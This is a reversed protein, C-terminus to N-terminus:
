IRKRRVSFSSKPSKQTATKRRRSSSSMDENDTKKMKNPTSMRRSKNTQEITKDQNKGNRPSRPPKRLCPRSSKRSITSEQTKSEHTKSEQTPMITTTVGDKSRKRVRITNKLMKLDRTIFEVLDHHKLTRDPEPPPPYKEAIDVIAQSLGEFDPREIANLKWCTKMIIKMEEPTSTPPEPMEGKRIKTAIRKPPWEDGDFPKIGNNFVEYLLVAFAWVDSKRTFKPTSTLTEPAMWRVPMQAKGGLEDFLDRFFRSLGFDAIKCVGNHSFLCNRAALDRHIINKNHLFKMGSSVDSCYMMREGTSIVEKFEKLHTLLAVTCLEMVIVVPPSDCCIGVFSVINPHKLQSMIKGEEILENFNTKVQEMVSKYNVAGEQSVKVAVQQFNILSAHYVVCFNGSGLLDKEKDYSIQDHRMLWSPRKSGQVLRGGTPLDNLKYYELLDNIHERKVTTGDLHFGQEEAIIEINFVNKMLKEDDNETTTGTTTTTSSKTKDDKKYTLFIRLNDGCSITRVVFDGSLKLHDILDKDQLMGYFWSFEEMSEKKWPDYKQENKEEPSSEKKSDQEQEDGFNKVM